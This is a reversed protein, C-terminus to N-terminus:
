PQHQIRFFLYPALVLWIPILVWIRGSAVDYNSLLASWPYGGVFHFFLFEFCLTMATWGLGVVLAAMASPPPFRRVFLWMVLGLLALGALTSLRHATLESMAPGYVLDRVTGNAISVLLM